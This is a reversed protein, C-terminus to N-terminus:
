EGIKRSIAENVDAYAGNLWEPDWFWVYLGRYEEQQIIRTGGDLPELKYEHNFTIIGPIGGFQNLYRNTEFAKVRASINSKNGKNDTMEYTVKNGLAIDGELPVLLPNWSQYDSGDIIVRWVEEPTAAVFLEAKVSKRGTVALTVFALLMGVVLVWKFSVFMWM